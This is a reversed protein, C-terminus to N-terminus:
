KQQDAAFLAGIGMVLKWIGDLNIAIGEANDAVVQAGEQIAVRTGSDILGFTELLGAVTLVVGVATTKWNKIFTELM